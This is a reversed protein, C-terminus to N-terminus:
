RLYPRLAFGSRLHMVSVVAVFQSSAPYNLEFSVTDSGYAFPQDLIARAEIQNKLPSPGYPAILIRYPPQGGSGSISVQLTSCQQPTTDFTWSFAVSLIPLVILTLLTISAFM